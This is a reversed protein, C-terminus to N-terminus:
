IHILSLGKKCAVMLNNRVLLSDSSGFKESGLEMGCDQYHYIKNNEIITNWCSNQDIADDGGDQFHNDNIRGNKCDIYEIADPVKLFSCHHIHPQQVNHLLFGEGQNNGTVKCNEIHVKGYWFRAVANDWERKHKNKFEVHNFYNDTQYSMIMGDEIIAHEILLKDCEGKARLIGWKQAPDTSHIHIPQAETGQIIVHGYAIINM